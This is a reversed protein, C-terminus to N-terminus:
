SSNRHLLAKANVSIFTSSARAIRIASSSSAAASTAAFSFICFSISSSSAIRALSRASAFSFSSCSFIACCCCVCGFGMFVIAMSVLKSGVCGEGWDCDDVGDERIPIPAVLEDGVDGGGGALFSSTTNEAVDSVKWDSTMSDGTGTRSSTYASQHPGHLARVGMRSSIATFPPPTNRRTLSFVSSSRGMLVASPTVASGVTKATLFPFISFENRPMGGESCNMLDKMIPSIMPSM